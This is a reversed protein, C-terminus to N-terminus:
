SGNLHRVNVSLVTNDEYRREGTRAKVDKLCEGIIRAYYKIWGYITVHSIYEM